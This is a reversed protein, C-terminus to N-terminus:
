SKTSTPWIVVAPNIWSRSSAPINQAKSSWYEQCRDEMQGQRQEQAWSSTWSRGFLEEIRKRCFRTLEHCNEKWSLWITVVRNRTRSSSMWAWSILKLSSMMRLHRVRQVEERIHFMIAWTKRQHIRILLAQRTNIERSRWLPVTTIPKLAQCQLDTLKSYAQRMAMSQSFPPALWLIILSPQLCPFTTSTKSVPLLRIWIWLAQFSALLESPLATTLTVYNAAWIKMNTKSPTSFWKRSTAQYTTNRCLQCM